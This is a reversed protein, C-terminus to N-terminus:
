YEPGQTAGGKVRALGTVQGLWCISQLDHPALKSDMSLSTRADGEKTSHSVWVLASSLCISICSSGLKCCWSLGLGAAVALRDAMSALGDQGPGRTGASGGGSIYLHTTEAM